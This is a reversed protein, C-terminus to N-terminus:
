WDVRKGAELDELLAFQEDFTAGGDFLAEAEGAFLGWAKEAYLWASAPKDSTWRHFCDTHQEPEETYEDWTVQTIDAVKCAKAFDMAQKWGAICHATGCHEYTQRHELRGDRCGELIFRIEDTIEKPLPKTM